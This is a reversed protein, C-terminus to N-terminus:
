HYICPPPTYKRLTAACRVYPTRLYAQYVDCYSAGQLFTENALCARVRCAGYFYATQRDCRGAVTHISLVCNRFVFRRNNTEFHLSVSVSNDITLLRYNYCTFLKKKYWLAYQTYAM